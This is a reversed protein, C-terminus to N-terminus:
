RKFKKLEDIMKKEDKINDIIYHLNGRFCVNTLGSSNENNKIFTEVELKLEPSCDINMLTEKLKWSPELM